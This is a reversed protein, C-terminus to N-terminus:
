VAPEGELGKKGYSRDYLLGSVLMASLGSIIKGVVLAPLYEKRFAMTFAIHDALVFAASVSFASNLVRGKRNM